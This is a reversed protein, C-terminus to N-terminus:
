KETKHNTDNLDKYLKCIIYKPYQSITGREVEILGLNMLRSRAYRLTDQNMGKCRNIIERNSLEFPKVWSSENAEALLEYYLAM